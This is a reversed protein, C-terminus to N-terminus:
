DLLRFPHLFTKKSEEPGSTQELRVHNYVSVNGYGGIGGRKSAIRKHM